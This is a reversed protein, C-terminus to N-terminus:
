GNCGRLRKELMAPPEPLPMWHTPMSDCDTYFGDDTYACWFTLHEDGDHWFGVAMNGTDFLMLVDQQKEPLKEDANVWAELDIYAPHYAYVSGVLEIEKDAWITEGDNCILQVRQGRKAIVLAWFGAPTVWVPKGDMQRLQELTLPTNCDPRMETANQDCKESNKM